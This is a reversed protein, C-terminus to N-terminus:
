SAKDEEDDAELVREDREPPVQTEIFEILKKLADIGTKTFPLTKTIGFGEGKATITLNGFQPKLDMNEGGDESGNPELTSEPAAKLYPFVENFLKGLTKAHKQAEIWSVGTIKGIKAPLATDSPIKGNWADFAEGVIKIKRIAEAKGEASKSNDTPDLAKVALETTKLVGRERETLGFMCLDDFRIYIFGSMRGKNKIQYGLKEAAKDNPIVGGYKTLAEQAIVLADKFTGRDPYSYKGIDKM